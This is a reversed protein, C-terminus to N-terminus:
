SIGTFKLNQVIALSLSLSPSSGGHHAKMVAHQFVPLSLLYLKSYIECEIFNENYHQKHCIQAINEDVNDHSEQFWRCTKSAMRLVFVIKISTHRSNFLYSSFFCQQMIIVDTNLFFSIKFCYSWRLYSLWYRANCKLMFSFVPLIWRM